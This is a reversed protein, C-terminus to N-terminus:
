GGFERPVCASLVGSDRLAAVTEGPFRAKADVDAANPATVEAAIRRVSSLLSGFAQDSRTAVTNMTAGITADAFLGTHTGRTLCLRTVVLTGAPARGCRM